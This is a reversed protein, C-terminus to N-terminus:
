ASANLHAEGSNRSEGRRGLKQALVLKVTKNVRKVWVLCKRNRHECTNGWKVSKKKRGANKNTERQESQGVRTVKVQEKNIEGHQTNLGRTNRELKHWHLKVSAQKLEESVTLRREADREWWVAIQNHGGATNKHRLSYLWASNIRHSADKNPDRVKKKKEKRKGPSLQHKFPCCMRVTLIRGSLLHREWTDRYCMGGKERKKKWSKYVCYVSAYRVHLALSGPFHKPVQNCFFLFSSPFFHAWEHTCESM